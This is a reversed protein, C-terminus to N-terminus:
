KKVTKEYECTKKDVVPYIALYIHNQIAWSVNRIM